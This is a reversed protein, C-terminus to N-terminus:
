RAIGCYMCIVISSGVSFHHDGDPSTQCYKDVTKKNDSMCSIAFDLKKQWKKRMEEKRARDRLRAFKIVDKGFAYVNYKAQEYDQKEM